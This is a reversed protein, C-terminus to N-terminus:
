PDVYLCIVLHLFSFKVSICKQTWRGAEKQIHASYWSDNNARDFWRFRILPNNLNLIFIESVCTNTLKFFFSWIFHIWSIVHVANFVACFIFKELLIKWYIHSFGRNEANQECKSFFDKISFNKKQLAIYFFQCLFYKHLFVYWTWFIDAENLM